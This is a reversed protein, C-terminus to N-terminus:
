LNVVWFNPIPTIINQRSGQTRVKLTTCRSMAEFTFHWFYYLLVQIRFTQKCVNVYKVHITSIQLFWFVLSLFIYRHGFSKFMGCINVLGQSKGNHNIVSVRRPYNRVIEWLKECTRGVKFPKMPLLIGFSFRLILSGLLNRHSPIIFKRYCNPFAFPGDPYLVHRDITLYSSPFQVCCVSSASPGHGGHM